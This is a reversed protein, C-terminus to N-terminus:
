KYLLSENNDSQIPQHFQNKSYSILLLTQISIGCKIHYRGAVQVPFFVFDYIVEQPHRTHTIVLFLVM